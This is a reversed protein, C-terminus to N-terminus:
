VGAKTLNTAGGEAEDTVIVGIGGSRPEITVAPTGTARARAAM